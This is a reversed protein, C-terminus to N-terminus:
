GALLFLDEPNAVGPSCIRSKSPNPQMRHQGLAATVRDRAQLAERRGRVFVTYNDGFRVVPLDEVQRDVPSLRLCLLLPALGSGAALPDPLGALATRVRRLFVGDSIYEALLDLVQDITMGTSVAAM